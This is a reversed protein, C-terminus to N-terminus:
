PRSRHLIVKNNTTKAIMQPDKVSIQAVKPDAAVAEVLNATKHAVLTWIFAGLALVFGGIAAWLDASIYGVITSSVGLGLLIAKIADGMQTANM